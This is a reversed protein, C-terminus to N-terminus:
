ASRRRRLSLTLGALLLVVFSAPEPVATLTFGNMSVNAGEGRITMSGGAGALFDTIFSYEGNVSPLVDKPRVHTVFPTTSDGYYWNTSVTGTGGSTYWYGDWSWLQVKYRQNPTLNAFTITPNDAFYLDSSLRGETYDGSDSPVPSGESDTRYRNQYSDGTASDLTVDVGNGSFTTTNYMVTFGPQAWTTAGPGYAGLDIKMIPTILGAQVTGALIFALTMVATTKIFYHSHQKMTQLREKQETLISTRRRRLSLTLGALLLVVFSAPEPVATLIFGNIPVDQNAGEGKLTVSGSPGSLFDTIFSYEGNVSPATNYPRTHEVIPTLDDGLYWTTTESGTYNMWYGDWSWLQLEYRQGPTLGSFTLTLNDTYLLDRSLREETYDGSDIPYDRYRWDVNDETASAVTVDVGNLTFNTSPMYIVTFGPQGRGAGSGDPGFDVNMIPYILDAHTAAVFLMILAILTSTEILHHRHLKM